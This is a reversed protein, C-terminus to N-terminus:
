QESNAAHLNGTLKLCLQLGEFADTAWYDSGSIRYIRDDLQGGGIIILPREKGTHAQNRFLEVLERLHHFSGTILASIAVLQPRFESAARVFEAPAVDVGLDMVTFGHCELLDKFLNKGIDHIDGSITGLLVRGLSEEPRKKTILPRLLELAQRMIEGAMILGAIFYQGAEHKSGVIRMGRQCASMIESAPIGEQIRRKILSLVEDEKLEAVLQALQALTVDSPEETKKKSTFKPTKITRGM